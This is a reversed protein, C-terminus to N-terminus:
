SRACCNIVCHNCRSLEGRLRKSVLDEMRLRLAEVPIKGTIETAFAFMLLMRAEHPPIGRSMLYFLAETDLQGITAGHSCKVDDAYIELQPRSYAHAEDTLLINNNSQFANTKQADRAVYVKGNFVSTANDDAISRFKQNSHGGSSLHEMYTFTDFHQKGDCLSLGYLNIAAEEGCVRGRTSNRLFGSHLSITNVDVVAKAAAQIMLESYGYTNNSSNQVRTFHLSASEGAFVETVGNNFSKIFSLSHDCQVLNLVSDEELIVLNRRSVHIDEEASVIDIVQIPDKIKVGKPVFVFLGDNALATNCYTLSETSLQSLQSYYKQILDPHKKFAEDLSGIIMGEPTTRLLEGSTYFYGNITILAETELEPVECRFVDEIRYDLVPKEKQFLMPMNLFASVDTHRWDEDKKVPLGSSLFKQLANKRITDLHSNTWATAGFEDAIQKMFDM